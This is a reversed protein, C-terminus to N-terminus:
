WAYQFQTDNGPSGPFYWPGHLTGVPALGGIQGMGTTGFVSGYGGTATPGTAYDYPSGYSLIGYSYHQGYHRLPSRFAWTPAIYGYGPQFYKPSGTYLPGSLSYASQYPHNPMVSASAWTMAPTPQSYWTSFYFPDGGAHVSGSMMLCLGVALLSKGNAM